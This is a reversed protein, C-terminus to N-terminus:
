RPGMHQNFGDKIASWCLKVKSVMRWGGSLWLVGLGMLSAVISAMLRFRTHRQMVVIRNRINYYHKHSFPTNRLRSAARLHNIKSTPVLWISFNKEKLRLSYDTDDYALFFQADPLGVADVATKSVLFGVFSGTDIEISQNSSYKEKSVSREWGMQRNFYRRHVLALTNFEIVTCCLAGVPASVSQNQTNEIQVCGDEVLRELADLHPVADDDMLWMWDLSPLHELAASMGLAFGGAGGSNSTHRVITLNPHDELVQQAHLPSANDLVVVRALPYTQNLLAHVVMKLENPRNYTVVVAVITKNNKM